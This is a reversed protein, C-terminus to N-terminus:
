PEARHPADWAAPLQPVPWAPDPRFDTWRGDFVGARAAALRMLHEGDARIAPVQGASWRGPRGTLVEFEDEDKWRATGDPAVLVDLARDSSDVARVGGAEWRVRPSELNGYWGHFAGDPEFFWWVSWDGAAPAHHVIGPGRWSTVAPRRELEFRQGLPVSRLDRGDPLVYEVQPWGEGVWVTLGDDDDALVRGVRVFRAVGLRGYRILVTDGIEWAM